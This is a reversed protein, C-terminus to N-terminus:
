RRCSRSRSGVIEGARAELSVPSAGWAPAFPLFGPATVAALSWRGAVRAEFWFTGDPQASVSSAEEARAFTLQAGPVPSGDAASVVRGAFAGNPALAAPAPGAPRVIAVPPVQPLSRGGGGVGPAAPPIAPATVAAPGSTSPARRALWFSVGALAILALISLVKRRSM